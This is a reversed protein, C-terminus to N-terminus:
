LMSVPNIDINLDVKVRGMSKTFNQSRERGPVKVSADGKRYFEDSAASLMKALRQISSCKIIIRWRYRNRLRTIPARSPGPLLEDGAEAKIFPLLFEAMAKAKSFALRDNASSVVVCGINTFPPYKLTRRVQVEQQFFAEYDHNCAALISYDDMSYAQIIVRGPFQGRGARGAVQTLLQFTRESARYDDIGLMSDAALVGVLTVNPFDHGKAIMQTGVLININKERFTDLIEEHSRKGSTTDMDMRIVSCRPFYKKLDEEVKQTGTGFQRISTSKCKPCTPPMKVTYGCYHCILRDDNAHYTMTINCHRCKLRIGCSRCLVFSAYGRKNLFLITQRGEVINKKIEESLARSFMTRNGLELEKRMDIVHTAPMDMANTRERMEALTIEGDLARQYTEVSPTASGYMLLAGDHMCRRVAIEEASYKPTTESKYTNEHEEDIIVIGLNEFPAFIASRAGVVVRVDGNRILRWQDYREGLSLRSHQVAVLDGFRGRFRDVMQPTLSIEPVLVIAQRGQELVHQILQMYVETKGSGTVGHVLMESFSRKDIKSRAAEIVERQERTPEMPETAEVEKHKFPDRKVEMERYSIYGYKCLTDTVSSSVSAFRMLDAVAVYENELLIELVRIQQIRKIVGNDIDERVEEPSMALTAVRINKQRVAMSYQEKMCLIGKGELAKLHSSFKSKVGSLAKLEGEELQGDNQQLTSIIAKQSPTLGEAEGENLLQVVTLSKVDIGAPLMCKVAASYTCFYRKKMWCALEILAETLVPKADIIKKISKLETYGSNEAFGFVYGEKPKDGKGFPVIVRMGPLLNAHMEEPVNYHYQKDFERTAGNIVVIAIKDM